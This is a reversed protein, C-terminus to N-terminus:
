NPETEKHPSPPQAIRAVAISGTLVSSNLFTLEKGSDLLINTHLPTIETVTGEGQMYTTAVRDGQQYPLRSYAATEHPHIKTILITGSAVASNPISVVGTDTRVRTVIASMELIKGPVNNVIVNDGVRFRHSAFVFVGSLISGVFTSIILGITITAIGASTLLTDPSVGLVHLIAFIMILLSISGMLFQIVTASQDGLHKAIAHKSRSILVLVLLWFGAVLTIRIVNDGFDPLNIPTQLFLNYVVLTGAALVVLLAVAIALRKVSSVITLMKCSGLALALAIRRYIKASKHARM